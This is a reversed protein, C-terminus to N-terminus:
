FLRILTANSQSPLRFLFRALKLLLDTDQFFAEDFLFNRNFLLISNDTFLSPAPDRALLVNEVEGSGIYGKEHLADDSHAIRGM